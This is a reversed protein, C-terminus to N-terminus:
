IAELINYAVVILIGDCAELYLVDRHDIDLVLLLIVCNGVDLREVPVGVEIAVLRNRSLIFVLEDSLWSEFRETWEPWPLLPIRHLLEGLLHINGPLIVLFETDDFRVGKSLSDSKEPHCM